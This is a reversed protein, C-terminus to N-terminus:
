ISLHEILEAESQWRTYPLTAKIVNNLYKGVSESGIMGMYHEPEAAMYSYLGGNLFKVCLTKSREHYAVSGVNSSDVETWDLKVEKRVPEM